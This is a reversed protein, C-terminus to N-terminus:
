QEFAGKEVAWQVWHTMFLRVTIAAGIAAGASQSISGVILFMAFCFLWQASQSQNMAGCLATNDPDNGQRTEMAVLSVGPRKVMQRILPIQLDNDTGLIATLTLKAWRTTLTLRQLAIAVL